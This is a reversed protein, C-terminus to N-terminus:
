RGDRGPLRAYVGAVDAIMKGEDFELAVEDRHDRCYSSFSDYRGIITRLAGLLEGSDLPPILIGNKGEVVVEPAGDLDYAIVPRGVILAQPLVRPLGEHLSAHVVLDMVSLYRPVEAPAVFGAFIVHAAVGLRDASRALEERLVGDGVFLVKINPFERLMGPMAELVAAHGKLPFLRSVKGIVFDGERIGLDRKLLPDANTWRKFDGTRFGSRIVVFKERRGVKARLCDDVIGVSVAIIVDSFRAAFRELGRFLARLSAPQYEHFPMGHITYVIHKVGALRAAFRGLIGAKSGHMHVIDYRGGRIFKVLKVLAVADYFPHVDRKLEPLIVVDLGAARALPGMDGESPVHPGSLITVDYGQRRLGDALTVVTETAGGVSFLTIVMLVRGKHEETSM